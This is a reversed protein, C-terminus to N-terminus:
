LRERMARIYNMCFDDRGALAEAARVVDMVEGATPDLIASDLGAAILCGLYTRNILPRNPLGFSINSLGCTTHAGPFAQMIRFVASLVALAQEVSTSIPQICPDVFLRGREIGASQAAEILKAAIDVRREATDPLGRGDMTLAVLRAGSEAALPIVQQMKDPEGTVSNLMVVDGEILELGARLAEPDSSDLCLPLDTSRQVVEVAWRLDDIERAPDSAANVDIFDAGAEAQIRVERELLGADREEIARGIRRRTANIREAIILM